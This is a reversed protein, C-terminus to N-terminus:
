ELGVWLMFSVLKLAIPFAKEVNQKALILLRYPDPRLRKGLKQRVPKKEGKLGDDQIIGGRLSNNGTIRYEWIM